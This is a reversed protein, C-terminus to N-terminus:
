IFPFMNMASISIAIVEEDPKIKKGEDLDKQMAAAQDRLETIRESLGLLTLENGEEIERNSVAAHLIKELDNATNNWFEIASKPNFKPDTVRATEKVGYDVLNAFEKVLGTVAVGLTEFADLKDQIYTKPDFEKKSDIYQSMEVRWADEPDITATSQIEIDRVTPFCLGKSKWNLEFESRSMKLEVIELDRNMIKHVNENGYKSTWRYSIPTYPYSNHCIWYLIFTFDEPTLRRVDVSVCTDIADVFMTYSQAKVSASIKSLAPTTLPRVFVERFDYPVGLSPLDQRIWEPGLDSAVRAEIETKLPASPRTHSTSSMLASMDVPADSPPPATRGTAQKIAKDRAEMLKADEPNDTLRTKAGLSQPKPSKPIVTANGPKFQM